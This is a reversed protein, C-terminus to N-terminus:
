AFKSGLITAPFTLMVRKDKEIMINTSLDDIAEIGYWMTSKLRRGNADTYSYIPTTPVGCGHNIQVEFHSTTEAMVDVLDGLALNWNGQVDKVYGLLPGNGSQYLWIEQTRAFDSLRLAEIELQALRALAGGISTQLGSINQTHGSVTQALAQVQQSLAAIQRSLSTNLDQVVQELADLDAAIGPIQAIAAKLASHLQFEGSADVVFDAASFRLNISKNVQSVVIPGLGM